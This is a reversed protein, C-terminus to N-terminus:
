AEVKTKEKGVVEAQIDATKKKEEVEVSFIKLEEELKSVIEGTQQLKVM